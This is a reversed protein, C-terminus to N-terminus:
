RPHHRDDRGAVAHHAPHGHVKELGRARLDRLQEWAQQWRVQYVSDADQQNADRLRVSLDNRLMRPASAAEDPSLVQSDLLVLQAPLPQPNMNAGLLCFSLILCALSIALPRGIIMDLSGHNVPSQNGFVGDSNPPQGNNSAVM